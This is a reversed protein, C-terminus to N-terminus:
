RRAPRGARAPSRAAAAPAESSSSTAPSRGSSRPARPPAGPAPSGRPPAPAPRCAHGDHEPGPQGPMRSCSAIPWPRSPSKLRLPVEANVLRMPSRTAASSRCPRRRRCARAAAAAREVDVVLARRRLARASRSRCGARSYAPCADVRAQHARARGAIAPAFGERVHRQRAHGVGVHAGARVVRLLDDGRDLVADVRDIEAAALDVDGGALEHERRALGVQDLVAPEARRDLARRQDAVSRIHQRAHRMTPLSRFSSSPTPVQPLSPWLTGTPTPWGVSRM